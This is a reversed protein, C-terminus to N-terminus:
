ILYKFFHVFESNKFILLYTLIISIFNIGENNLLAIGLSADSLNKNIEM